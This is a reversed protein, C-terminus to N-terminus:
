LKNAAFASQKVVKHMPRTELFDHKHDFSIDYKM